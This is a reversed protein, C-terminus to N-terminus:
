TSELCSSADSLSRNCAIGRGCLPYCGGLGRGYLPDNGEWLPFVSLWYCLVLFLSFRYFRRTSGCAIVWVVLEASVAKSCGHDRSRDWLRFGLVVFVELQFQPKELSLDLM